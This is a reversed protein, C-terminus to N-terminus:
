GRVGLLRMMWVIPMGGPTVLDAGNIVDRYEASDYSEMVMHIPAECVYKSEGARAWYAIRQVADTYSTAHVQMGLLSRSELPQSLHDQAPTRSVLPEARLATTKHV